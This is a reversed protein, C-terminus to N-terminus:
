SEQTYRRDNNHVWRDHHGHVFTRVGYKTKTTRHPTNYFYIITYYYQRRKNNRQKKITFTFFLGIFKLNTQQLTNIQLIGIRQASASCYM